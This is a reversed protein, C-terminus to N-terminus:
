LFNFIVICIVFPVGLIASGCVNFLNLPLKVGFGGGFFNLLLLAAMGTFVGFIATKFRKLRTFYYVTMALIAVACLSWFIVNVM